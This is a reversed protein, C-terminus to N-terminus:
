HSSEVQVYHVREKQGVKSIKVFQRLTMGRVITMRGPDGTLTVLLFTWTSTYGTIDNHANRVYKRREIPRDVKIKWRDGCQEFGRIVGIVSYLSSGKRVPYSLIDGVKMPRHTADCPTEM